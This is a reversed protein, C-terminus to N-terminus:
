TLYSIQGGRRYGKRGHNAHVEGDPPIMRTVKVNPDPKNPWPKKLRCRKRKRVDKVYM